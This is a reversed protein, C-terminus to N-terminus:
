FDRNTKQHFQDTKSHLAAKFRVKWGPIYAISRSFSEKRWNMGFTQNPALGEGWPMSAPPKATRLDLDM